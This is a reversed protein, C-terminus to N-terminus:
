IANSVGAMIEIMLGRRQIINMDNSNNLLTVHKKESRDILNNIIKINQLQRETANKM